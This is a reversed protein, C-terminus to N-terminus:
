NVGTLEDDGGTRWIPTVPTVDSGPALRDPSRARVPNAVSLKTATVAAAPQRPPPKTGCADVRRWSAPEAAEVALRVFGGDQRM